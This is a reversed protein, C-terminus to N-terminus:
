ISGGMRRILRKWTPTTTEKISTTLREWDRFFQNCGGPPLHSGDVYVMAKDGVVSPNGIFRMDHHKVLEQFQKLRNAPISMSTQM